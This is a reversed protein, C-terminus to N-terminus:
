RRRREMAAVPGGELDDELATRGLEASERVAERVRQAEAAAGTPEAWAKKDACTVRHMVYRTVPQGVCASCLDPEIWACVFTDPRERSVFYGLRVVSSRCADEGVCGCVRCQQEKTRKFRARGDHGLMVNGDPVPDADLVATAGKITTVYRVPRSCSRCKELPPM